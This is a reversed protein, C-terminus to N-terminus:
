MGVKKKYIKRHCTPCLTIIRAMNEIDIIGSRTGEFEKDMHHVHFKRGKHWVKECLLCVNRDRERISDRINKTDTIKAIHYVRQKSIGLLKAIEDYTFRRYRLKIIFDRRLHVGNEIALLIKLSTDKDM